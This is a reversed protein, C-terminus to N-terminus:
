LPQNQDWINTPGPGMCFGFNKKQIKYPGAVWIGLKLLLSWYKPWNFQLSEIDRWIKCGSAWWVGVVGRNSFLYGFYLLIKKSARATTKTGEQIVFNQEGTKSVEKGAKNQPIFRLGDGFGCPQMDIGLAFDSDQSSVGTKYQSAVQLRTTKSIPQM